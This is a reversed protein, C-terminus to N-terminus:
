LECMKFGAKRMQEWFDPYSKSVEHHNEIIVEIGTASLMAASMVVRHDGRGNVAILGPLDRSKSVKWQGKGTKIFEAGLTNVIEDIAALRDSEKLPQSGLGRFEGEIGCAACALIVPLALDPTDSFDYFFSSPHRGTNRILPGSDTFTFHLGLEKGIKILASDGQLSHETLEYLLIGSNSNMVGASIWFAASSWDPEIMIKKEPKGRKSVSIKEPSIEAIMGFKSMIEATLGIYPRSVVPGKMNIVLTDSFLTGAMMLASVFQSSVSADISVSRKHMQRNGSIGLPPFGEEELYEIICGLERLADVLPGVPRKKMRENGTLIYEGKRFALCATLFRLVTGANGADIIVESKYENGLSGLINRLLLTDDALSLNKIETPYGAIFNMLLARNSISKSSPLRVEAKLPTHLGQIKIGM